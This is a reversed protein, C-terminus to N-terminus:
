VPLCVIVCTTEYNASSVWADDDNTSDFPDFTDDPINMYVQGADVPTDTIDTAFVMFRYSSTPGGLDGMPVEVRLDQDTTAQASTDSPMSQDEWAGDVVAQYTWADEGKDYIFQFDALDDDDADIALSVSDSFRTDGDLAHPTHIDFAVTLQLTLSETMQLTDGYIASLSYLESPQNGCGVAESGLDTENEQTLVPLSQASAAPVFTM